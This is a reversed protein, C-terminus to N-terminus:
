DLYSRNNAKMWKQFDIVNKVSEQLTFFTPNLAKNIKNNSYHMKSYASRASEITVTPKNRFVRATKENMKAFFFALWKPPCFKPPNSKMETSIAFLLEKFSVNESVCLYREGSIESEMLQILCSVVNRADVFANSGPSYFKLGKQVTKFISLSSENLDGAGFIIAPNIIVTELGEEQGRWVEREANRKSLAYGSHETSDWKTSESVVSGEVGGIAATSSVHALKKIGFKLSLNVINATGQKNVTIMENFDNKRFSVLAACHYVHTVNQLADELSILDLVDGKVWEISSYNNQNGLSSYYDFLLQVANKKKEDRYLARVPYGLNTLEYLLHSGLLGTGGTVLIM